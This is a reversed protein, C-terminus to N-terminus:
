KAPPPPPGVPPPVINHVPKVTRLYAFMCKLDDDSLNRFWMWPMPPLIHRGVGAHRGTKMASVFMEETWKGLGFDDSTLNAAYSTGWPGYFATNTASGAWMWGGGLKPPPGLTLNAPHGSLALSMDPEPGQPGMKFPTHCDNCGMATVLHQGRKLTEASPGAARTAIGTAAVLLTALMVVSVLALKM